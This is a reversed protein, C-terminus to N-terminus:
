VLAPVFRQQDWCRRFYGHILTETVFSDNSIFAIYQNTERSPCGITSRRPVKTFVRDALKLLLSSM